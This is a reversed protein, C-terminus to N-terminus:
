PHAGPRYTRGRWSTPRRLSSLVLRGAALPDSLPSLWYTVGREAYSHRLGFLLSVRVLFLAANVAVLPWANRLVGALALFLILLPLGQAAIVIMVDIMQLVPKTADKLDISRGWERWMQAASAYSRVDYLSAGDLFAVRVGRQELHRILSVDEAFSTRVAAYGGAADLVATRLLFCQGNALVRDGTGASAPAFRYLLSVLMSPQLWREAPSQGAFRPALSIAEYGERNAAAVISGTLGPHPSTDADLSLMWPTRVHKRACELAWAKGVWGDPLPDDTMFRIRSDAAAATEIMSQTADSSSSDVFLIHEVNQAKLGALLPGIREAENLTPVVITVAEATGGPLPQLPPPLNRWRSLRRLAVAAGILQLVFLATIQASVLLFKDFTLGRNL